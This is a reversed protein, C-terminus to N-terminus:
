WYCFVIVLAVAYNGYLAQRTQILKDSAHM